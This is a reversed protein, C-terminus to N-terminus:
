NQMVSRLKRHGLTSKQRRVIANEVEIKTQKNRATDIKQDYVHVEHAYHRAVISSLAGVFTLVVGITTIRFSVTDWWEAISRFRAKLPRPLSGAESREQLRRSYRRAMISSASAVVTLVVGVIAFWFSVVDWRDAIPQLLHLQSELSEM